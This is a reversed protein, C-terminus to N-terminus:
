ARYSVPGSYWVAIVREGSSEVYAPWTCGSHQQLQGANIQWYEMALQFRRFEDNPNAIATGGM